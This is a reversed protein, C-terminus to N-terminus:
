KDRTIYCACEKESLKHNINFQSLKITNSTAFKATVLVTISNVVLQYAVAAFLSALKQGLYSGPIKNIEVLQFIIKM